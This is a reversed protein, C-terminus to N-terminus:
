KLKCYYYYECFKCGSQREVIVPPNAINRVEDALDPALNISLVEPIVVEPAFGRGLAPWTFPDHLFPPSGKKSRCLFFPSVM